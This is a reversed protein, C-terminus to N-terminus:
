HMALLAKQEDRHATRGQRRGQCPDTGTAVKTPLSGALTRGEFTVPVKSSTVRITVSAVLWMRPCMWTRSLYSPRTILNM